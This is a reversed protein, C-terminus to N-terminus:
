NNGIGFRNRTNTKGQFYQNSENMVKTAHQVQALMAHDIMHVEHVDHRGEGPVVLRAYQEMVWRALAVQIAKIERKAPDKTLSLSAKAIKEARPVLKIIMTKFSDLDTKKSIVM